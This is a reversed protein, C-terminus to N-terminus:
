NEASLVARWLEMPCIQAPSSEFWRLRLALLNVTQGTQGSRYRGTKARSIEYIRTGWLKCSATAKAATSLLLTVTVNRYPAEARGKTPRGTKRESKKNQPTTRTRAARNQLRLESLIHGPLIM